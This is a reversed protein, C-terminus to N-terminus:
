IQTSRKKAIEDLIKVSESNDPNDRFEKVMKEIDCNGSCSGATHCKSCAGHDPCSGCTGNKILYRIAPILLALLVALTIISAANM